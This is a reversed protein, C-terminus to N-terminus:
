LFEKICNGKNKEHISKKVDWFNIKEGEIKPKKLEKIHKEIIYSAIELGDFCGDDDEISREMRDEIENLIKKLEKEM